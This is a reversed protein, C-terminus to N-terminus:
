SVHTSMVPQGPAALIAWNGGQLEPVVARVDRGQKIAATVPSADQPYGLLIAGVIKGDAIVLKRYRGEAPDELAIVLDDPDAAEFQGVSTVDVGVVKLITVPVTGNYSRTAGIANTSAVEAQEVATPWLGYIQGAHEALDGAAFILPDSTRMAEDVLVGRKCTLGADQALAINPTIGAAVLFVDCPMRRGDKLVVERVREETSGNEPLVEATEANIIIELGLNELYERLYQSARADLQRKLLRDSRELVAAHLGLKHLAYAAELGLLGGGAVVAHRARNDQAFARIRMADDAERLVFTGPRGFGNIPPVMSSSGMALILRDYPLMEGTGLAVTQATRDIHTAQTNLWCTIQNEEYWTEPMLYLGQMASRGYILRSIAMRNYLYHSERGVLHIECTPHRRRVHDAATVGAIGTGIVVVRKISQDYEPAVPRAAGKRKREPKLAVSCTGEVRACCAMRTNEALNLRRLTAREDDSIPGLHEMGAVVAVPDAGCVGMRCGAELPLNNAEIVELLTRGAEVVFRQDGPMITVEPQAQGAAAQRQRLMSLAPARVTTAGGAQLLFLGEKLYTRALWAVTAGLLLGRLVWLIIMPVTIGALTSLATAMNPFSFWYFLNLAAAAFVTTIKHTTVRFFTELVYFTGLSFLMAFAFRLYMQPISIAPPAPVQFFAVILGPFIGVFFKRYGTYHRDADHLDALYAVAPNFDYCNKACGVCPACHSNRVRLFPTQGYIRQVPLLPCISSCWGSKGKFLVGGVFASGLAFLILGASAPGNTNFLWKRATVFLLFMGIGILYANQRLWSPLKNGYTFGFLRPAQNMAALPCINRWLGPAVFFLLPLSPVILGWWLTLGLDPRLMLIVCMGLATGVSIVRLAHWIPAPVRARVQM